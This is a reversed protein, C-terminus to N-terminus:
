SDHQSLSTLILLQVHHHIKEKELIQCVTLRQVTDLRCECDEGSRADHEIHVRQSEVLMQVSHQEAKMGACGTLIYGYGELAQIYEDCFSAFLHAAAVSM